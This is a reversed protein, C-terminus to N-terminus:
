EVVATVARGSPATMNVIAVPSSGTRDFQIDAFSMSTIGNFNLKFSTKLLHVINSAYAIMKDEGKLLCSSAIDKPLDSGLLLIGEEPVPVLKLTSNNSDLGLDKALAKSLSVRKGNSKSFVIGFSYKANGATSIVQPINAAQAQQLLSNVNYNTM